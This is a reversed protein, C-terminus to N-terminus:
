NRTCSLYNTVESVLKYVRKAEYCPQKAVGLTLVILPYCGLRRTLYGDKLKKFIGDKHGRPHPECPTFPQKLM